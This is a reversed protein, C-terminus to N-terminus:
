NAHADYAAEITERLSRPKLKEVPSSESRLNRAARKSRVVRKAKTATAAKGQQDLMTKRLDPASWVASDYAEDLTKAAGSQLLAAMRTRVAAFHPHLPTGDDAKAQSFAGIESHLSEQHSQQQQQHQATLVSELQHVRQQLQQTQPDAFEDEFEDVPDSAPQSFQSLDVRLNDALQRLSNVPDRQLAEAANLLQAVAAASSMGQLAHRERYPELVQQLEKYARTDDDSMTSVPPAPDEEASAEAEPEEIEETDDDSAELEEGSDPESVEEPEAEESAELEEVTEIPEEVPTKAEVEDYAAAIAERLDNTM